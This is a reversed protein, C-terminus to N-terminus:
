PSPRSRPSKEGASSLTEPLLGASAAIPFTCVCLNKSLPPFSPPIPAYGTRSTKIERFTTAYTVSCYLLHLWAWLSPNASPAATLILMMPSCPPTPVYMLLEDKLPQGNTDREQLLSSAPDQEPDRPSVRRDAFLERAILYLKESQESTEKADQRRWANVWAAATDALMPATGDELNLWTTEVWAAFIAAFDGCIDGGGKAVLKAFEREAHEKLVPELRRLRKPRLTRDLATRYPTHAPPDTNLPPRRIGRPDSPIVAKVSSIFIEADSAANKVDEYRTLLYFGRNDATHAVPCRSRLEAFQAYIKEPNNNTVLSFDSVSVNPQTRAETM